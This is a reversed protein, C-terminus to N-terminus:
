RGGTALAWAGDYAGRMLDEAGMAAVSAIPSDLADAAGGIVGGSAHGFAESLAVGVICRGFSREADASDIAKMACELVANVLDAHGQWSRVEKIKEVLFTAYEVMDQGGGHEVYGLSSGTNPDIAYWATPTGPVVVRLANGDREVKLDGKAQELSVSANAHKGRASHVEHELATDVIGAVFAGCERWTKATGQAPNALIDFGARITAVKGDTIRSVFSVLTTGSTAPASLSLRASLERQLQARVMAFHYLRVDLSPPRHEVMLATPQIKPLVVEKLAIEAELVRDLALDAGLEGPLVLLDRIALLDFVRQRGQVGKRVLDRRAVAPPGGPATTAVELWAETLEKAEGVPLGDLRDIAGRVKALVGNKVERRRGTLDFPHGIVPRGWGTVVPVFVGVAAIADLYDKPQSGQLRNLRAPDDAAANSVTLVRGFLDMARYSVDLVKTEADGQRIKMQIAVRHVDAAPLSAPSHLSREEAGEPRGLDQDGIRVWWVEDSAPAAPPPVAVGALELAGAVAALDRNIRAWARERFADAAAGAAASKKALREPDLKFRAAIQAVDRPQPPRPTGALTPQKAAALTGKVLQPSRDAVLTALLLARDAWGARRSVLAGEAGKMFGRYAEIAIQTRILEEAKAPDGGLSRALAAPDIEYRPLAARIEKLLEVGQKGREVIQAWTPKEDTRALDVPCHPALLALAVILALRVPKM